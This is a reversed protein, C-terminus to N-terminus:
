WGPPFISEDCMYDQYLDYGGTYPVEIDHFKGDPTDLLWFEGGRGLDFWFEMKRRKSIYSSRAWWFHGAYTKRNDPEGPKRSEDTPAWLWAGDTDFEELTKQCIEWNHILFYEMHRNWNIVCKYRHSNQDYTFGKTHFYLANAEETNEKYFDIMLNLTDAEDGIKPNPVKIVKVKSYLQKMDDFIFENKDSVNHAVLFFNRTNKYLGSKIVKDIRAKMYNLLRSTSVSFRDNGCWCHFWIDIPKSM